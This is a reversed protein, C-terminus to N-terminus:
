VYRGQLTDTPTLTSVPEKLPTSEPAWKKKAWSRGRQQGARTGPSVDPTIYFKPHFNKSFFM